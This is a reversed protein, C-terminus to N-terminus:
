DELEGVRRLGKVTRKAKNSGIQVVVPVEKVLQGRQRTLARAMRTDSLRSEVQVANYGVGQQGPDLRDLAALLAADDAQDQEVDKQRRATRKEEQQSQRAQNATQVTVDWKRGGFDDGLTGEEADVAWCGGHGVSGGVNLWLKHSGSGSVYTERRSLLLWQRAFEAIGAYALEELEMPERSAAASKTTHHSLVPTAGAELCARAVGLLLPGMQYMNEARAGGPGQGALLSLYLPDIVVVEVGDGELGLELEKLDAQNALQPLNFQWTLKEWLLGFTIGRARCVRLATERITFEGSEGSLVAVRVPKPVNFAGLFATGSALSVALDIALTTKLVKRAGGVVAPQGAVLMRKVLWAPQYDAGALTASDTPDWQFSPAAPAFPNDPTPGSDDPYLKRTTWAHHKRAEADGATTADSIARLYSYYADQWAPM